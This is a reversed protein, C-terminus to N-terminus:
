IVNEEIDLQFQKLYEDVNNLNGINPYINKYNDILKIKINNNFCILFDSCIRLNIIKIYKYKNKLIDIRNKQENLDSSRLNLSFIGKPTLFQSFNIEINPISDKNYENFNDEFIILDFNENNEKLFLSVKEYSILKVKSDNKIFRNKSELKEEISKYVYNQFFFVFLIDLEKGYIVKYYNNLIGFDDVVILVKIKNKEKKILLPLFLFYLYEILPITKNNIQKDDSILIPLINNKKILRIVKTDEFVELNKIDEKWIIKNVYKMNMNENNNFNYEIIKILKDTNFSDGFETKRIIIINLHYISNVLTEIWRDILINYPDKSSLIEIYFQENNENYYNENKYLLIIYNIKGKSEFLGLNEKLATNKKFFNRAKILNSYNTAIKEVEILQVGSLDEFLPNECGVKEISILPVFKEKKFYIIFTDNDLIYIIINYSNKINSLISDINKLFFFDVLIYIEEFYFFTKNIDYKYQRLNIEDFLNKKIKYDKNEDLYKEKNFTKLDILTFKKSLSPIIYKILFDLDTSVYTKNENISNLLGIILLINEKDYKRNKIFDLIKDDIIIPRFQIKEIENEIEKEELKQHLLNLQKNKNEIEENKKEIEENKKEIEKNKKDLEKRQEDLEKNKLELQNINEWSETIFHKLALDPQTYILYLNLSLGLEKIVKKDRKVCEQFIKIMNEEFNSDVIYLLNSEYNKTELITYILDQFINFTLITNGIGTLEERKYKSSSFSSNSKKDNNTNIETKNLEKYDIILGKISNKIELFYLNNNTLELKKGNPFIIEDKEDGNTFKVYYFYDFGDIILKDNKLNLLYIQDIEEITKGDNNSAKFILNPLNSYQGKIKGEFTKLISEQHSYGKLFKSIIHNKKNQIFKKLLNDDEILEELDKINYFKKFQKQTLDDNKHISKLDFYLKGQNFEIEVGYKNISGKKETFFLNYMERGVTAYIKNDKGFLGVKFKLNDIEKKSNLIDICYTLIPYFLSHHYEKAELQNNPERLSQYFDLLDYSKQRGIEYQGIEIIQNKHM